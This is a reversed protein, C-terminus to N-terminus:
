QGTVLLLITGITILLSYLYRKDPHMKKKIFFFVCVLPLAFVLLIMPLWLLEFVVGAVPFKYVDRIIYLVVWWFLHTFLSLVLVLVAFNNRSGLNDPNAQVM